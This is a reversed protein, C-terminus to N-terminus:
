IAAKASVTIVGDGTIQVPILIKDTASTSVTISKLNNETFVANGEIYLTVNQSVLKGTYDACSMYLTTDIASGEWIQNPNSWGWDATMALDLKDMYAVHSTDVYFLANSVDDYVICDLSLDKGATKKWVGATTDFSLIEYGLPSATLMTKSDIMFYSMIYNNPNKYSGKFTATNATEDVEYTYIGVNESYTTMNTNACVVVTVFSKNNERYYETHYNYTNSKNTCDYIAFPIPVDITILTGQVTHEQENGVLKWLGLIKNDSKLRRVHYLTFTGDSNDISLSCRTGLVPQQDTYDTSITIDWDTDTTITYSNGVKDKDVSFISFRNTKSNQTIIDNITINSIGTTSSVTDAYRGSHLTDLGIIDRESSQSIIRYSCYNSCHYSDNTYFNFWLLAHGDSDRVSFGSFNPNGYSYYSNSGTQADGGDAYLYLQTKYRPLPVIQSTSVCDVLNNSFSLKNSGTIEKEPTTYVLYDVGNNEYGTLYCPFNRRAGIGTSCKLIPNKYSYLYSNTKDFGVASCTLPFCKFDRTLLQSSAIYNNNFIGFFNSNVQLKM